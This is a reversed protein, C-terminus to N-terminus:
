ESDPLQVIGMSQYKALKRSITSPDVELLRAVQQLTSCKQFAM